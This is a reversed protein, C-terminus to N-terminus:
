GQQEGVTFTFHADYSSETIDAPFPPLPIASLVARKGAIDYYENGSSDEIMVDTVTGNRHLKFRITVRLAKDVGNGVPPASWLNSIRRKVLGLYANSGSTMGPVKLTTDVAKVSPVKAELQPTPPSAPNAPMEAHVPKPLSIKKIKKLEEDLEKTLDDTVSSAAKAPAPKVAPEKMDSAVPVDPLKLQAKKPRDAPSYDGFKPADPPLEVGKMVDRLVDNSLKAPISPPPVSTAKPIPVPLPAHVPPSPPAVKMAPPPKVPAPKPAEVVKPQVKPPPVSVKPPETVNTVPAPLHALSIEISALPREGQQPLRVLAVLLLVALHLLLSVVVARGLRRTLHDQWEDQFWGDGSTSAQVM